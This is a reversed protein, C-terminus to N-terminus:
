HNGTCALLVIEQFTNAQKLIKHAELLTSGTTSIDDIVLLLKQSDQEILYENNIEFAGNLIDIRESKTKKYLAETNKVRKLLKALYTAKYSKESLAKQFSEAILASQNYAREKERRPNMPIETIFIEPTITSQVIQKFYKLWYDALFEGWFKALRPKKYKLRKILNKSGDKYFSTFFIPKQSLSTLKISEGFSIM